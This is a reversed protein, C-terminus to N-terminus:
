KELLEQNFEHHPFSSDRVWKVKQYLEEKLTGKIKWSNSVLANQLTSLVLDAKWLYCFWLSKQTPLSSHPDDLGVGLHIAMCPDFGCGYCKLQKGTTENQEDLLLQPLM